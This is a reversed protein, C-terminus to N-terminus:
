EDHAEMVALTVEVRPTENNDKIRRSGDHSAIWYDNAIVGAKQLADETGQYLNSLDSTDRTPLYFLMKTHIPKKPLPEKSRWQHRLQEIASTMWDTAQQSKAIFPKGTKRNRFIRKTNKLVAPRGIITLCYTDM